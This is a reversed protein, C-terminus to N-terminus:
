SFGCKITRKREDNTSGGILLICSPIEFIIDEALSVNAIEVGDMSSQRLDENEILLHNNDTELVDKESQLKGLQEMKLDLANTLDAM